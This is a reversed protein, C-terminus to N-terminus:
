NLCVGREIGWDLGFYVCSGRCGVRVLIVYCVWM